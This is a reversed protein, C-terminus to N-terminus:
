DPNSATLGAHLMDLAAASAQARIAARDGAFHFAQHLTDRASCTAIHVTGVPKATSGGGPGAIGTIAATIDAGFCRRAGQAMERATQESVAGFDEITKSSVGIIEHKSQNSYTVASGLFVQSAGATETLLFAVQGGTCSEALAISRKLTQALSLVQQAKQALAEPSPTTM